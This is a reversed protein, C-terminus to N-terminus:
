ERHEMRKVAGECAACRPADDDPVLEAVPVLASVPWQGCFALAEADFTEVRLEAVRFAHALKHNLPRRWELVPEPEPGPEPASPRRTIAIWGAALVFLAAAMLALTLGNM